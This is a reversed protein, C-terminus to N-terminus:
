FYYAVLLFGVLGILDLKEHRALLDLVKEKSLFVPTKLPCNPGATMIPTDVSRLIFTQDFGAFVAEVHDLEDTQRPLAQNMASGNGLQGNANQGFPYLRGGIVVVSHNRGCAVRTVTSGMLETVASPNTHKDFRYIFEMGGPPSGPARKLWRLGFPRLAIPTGNCRTLGTVAVASFAVIPGIIHMPENPKWTFVSGGVIPLTDGTGLQGYENHGWVYVGGGASVAVCHRGGAAVRVIPIGTLQNVIQPSHLIAGDSQEGWVAVVGDLHFCC